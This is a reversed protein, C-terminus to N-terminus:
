HRFARQGTFVMSVGHEDAAEIVEDDRISGGPQVVAAVGAEAAKDLGDRFPLFADSAMVSGEIEDGGKESGIWSSDVRSTQGGGIGVTRTGKAYLVSNSKVHRVARFAFELTDWQEPTPEVETVVEWEDVVPEHIDRDQVVLGGVVSNYELGGWRGREDLGPVELLRLKKKEAFVDRADDTFGPAAVCELFIETLEEAAEEDVTRNFSVIGGYPSYTDCAYADRWAQAPTDASAIGSPTAHKIIVCTPDEFDKAAEIAADLDVINNYSLEKGQVKEANTVAPEDSPKGRYFAARQHDNEGYRLDQKKRFSLNLEEPFDDEVLHSRFYQDIITDYRATHAFARHALQRRLETDLDGGEQLHDAVEDYQEPNTVVTVHRHNKAAARVLAPGGIDIQELVDAVPSDGSAAERFPYLNVCVLDIPEFGHEELDQMDEEVHRRALIGAQIAPHLSKVRGGLMEPFGTIESIHTVPIGADELRQATGGTSLIRAGRDVLQQSFSGIGTKDSVSVLANFAAV